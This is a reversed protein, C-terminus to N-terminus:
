CTSNQSSNCNTNNWWTDCPAASQRKGSDSHKSTFWGLLIAHALPSCANISCRAQFSGSAKPKVTSTSHQLACPSESLTHARFPLNRNSDTTTTTISPCRTLTLTLTLTHSRISVLEFHSFSSPIARASICHSQNASVHARPLCPSLSLLSFSPLFAWVSETEREHLQLFIPVFLSPLFSSLLFSPLLLSPSLPSCRLSTQHSQPSPQTCPLFCFRENKQRTRQMSDYRISVCVLQWEM